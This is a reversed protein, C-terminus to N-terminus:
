DEMSRPLHIQFLGAAAIAQIIAPPVRRATELEEYKTHIHSGLKLATAVVEDDFGAHSM